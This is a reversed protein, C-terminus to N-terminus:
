RLMELIGRGGEHTSGGQEKGPLHELREQAARRLQGLIRLVSGGQGQAQKKPEGPGSSGNGQSKADPHLLDLIAKKVRASRANSPVGAPVQPERDAKRNEEEKKNTPHREDPQAPRRTAPAGEVAGAMGGVAAAASEPHNQPAEGSTSSPSSAGGCGALAALASAVAIACISRKM